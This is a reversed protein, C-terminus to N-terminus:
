KPSEATKPAEPPAIVGKFNGEKDLNLMPTLKTDYPLIVFTNNPSTALKSLEEIYKWTLYGPTIGKTIIVQADAIGKAEVRKQEAEQAAKQLVFEMQEAAQKAAMKRDIADKVQPPFKVDRLLVREVNIGRPSLEKRLLAESNLAAKQRQQIDYLGECSYESIADRMVGRVAPHIIKTVYGAGITKYTTIAKESDLAYWVSIDLGISLGEKSTVFFEEEKLEEVQTSLCMVKSLPHVPFNFGPKLTEERVSGFVDVIGVHGAPVCSMSCSGMILTLLALIAFGVAGTILCGQRGNEAMQRSRRDQEEADARAQRVAQEQEWERRREEFTKRRGGEGTVGM